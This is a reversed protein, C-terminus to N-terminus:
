MGSERILVGVAFRWFGAFFSERSAAISVQGRAQTGPVSEGDEVAIRLRYHAREPVMTDDMVRVKIGGEFLSAFAPEALVRAATKEVLSISCGIGNQALTNAYFRCDAGPTIRHITDEDVYAIIGPEFEGRADTKLIIALKHGAGIWQGPALYPDLDMVRGTPFPSAVVLRALEKELGIHKAVAERFEALITQNRKRFSEEFSASKLEYRLTEIRTGAQDLKHTLDPNTLSFLTRDQTVIDGEGVNIDTILAPSATYLT